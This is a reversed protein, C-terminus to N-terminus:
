LFIDLHILSAGQGSQANSLLLELASDRGLGKKEVIARKLDGVSMFVGDFNIVESTKASKFKFYVAGTSSAM